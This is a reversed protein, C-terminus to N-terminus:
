VSRTWPMHYFSWKQCSSCLIWISIDVLTLPCEIFKLPWHLERGSPRFIWSLFRITQFLIGKKSYRFISLTRFGLLVSYAILQSTIYFFHKRYLTHRCVFSWQFICLSEQVQEQEEETPFLFDYHDDDLLSIFILLQMRRLWLKVLYFLLHYLIFM